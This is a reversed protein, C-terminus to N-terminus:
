PTLKKVVTTRGKDLRVIFVPRRVVQSGDFSLPGFLGEFDKIAALTKQLQAKGSLADPQRLAEFLIGASEYALAATTDPNTQFMDQYLKIFDKARAADDELVFSTVFYVAAGAEGVAQALDAERGGFLVTAAPLRARVTRAADASGALLISGSKGLKIRGALEAVEADKKYHWLRPAEGSTKPQKRTFAEVVQLSYEDSDDVLIAEVPAAGTQTLAEGHQAPSMGTLFVQESMAASRLGISAVVVLGARDLREVEATSAGGLLAAVRNVVALRVAEGEVSELRGMSDAHLVAVSRTDDGIGANATKVALRIGQMAHQGTEKNPGSLAAVHGVVIPPPPSSGSCGIVLAPGLCLLLRLLSPM